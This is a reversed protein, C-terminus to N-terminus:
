GSCARRRGVGLSDVRARWASNRRSLAPRLSRHCLSGSARGSRGHEMYGTQAFGPRNGTIVHSGLSGKAIAVVADGVAFGEVGEGVEAIHGACEAGFPGPDGPYLDLANLVDRFNLGAADIRIEVEGPGPRRRTAREIRLQDLDGRNAIGVRICDGEAPVLRAAKRTIGRWAVQSEGDPRLIERLLPSATDDDEPDLDVAVCHLEPHELRITRALGWLPAQAPCVAGGAAQAGRTVLFLRPVSERQGSLAQVIELVTGCIERGANGNLGSNSIDLAQLHIIVELNPDDLVDRSFTGPEILRSRGGLDNLRNALAAGTGGADGLILCYGTVPRDAAEPPLDKERWALEYLCNEARRSSARRLRLGDFRAVVRGAEAVVCIDATLTDGASPKLQATAWLEDRLPEFLDFRDIGLPLYLDNTDAVAASLVQISADILAPHAHYEGADAPLELRGLAQLAGAWLESVLRFSKGLDVGKERLLVYQQSPDVEARMQARLDPMAVPGPRTGAKASRASARLKWEERDRQYLEIHDGDVVVQVTGGGDIEVPERVLVDELASGGSAALFMELCAAMPLIAKGRVRHESLFPPWDRPSVEFVTQPLAPSVIRRGLLPHEGVKRSDPRWYRQREFPTLPLAVKQRPKRAEQPPIAAGCTFESKAAAEALRSRMEAATEARVEVRWPFATRCASATYCVDALDIGPNADFFSCYREALRRLAVASHASLALTQVAAAPEPRAQPPAEELVIHVNTGSFGFSSVGAIRPREGRSWRIRDVPVEVPVGKLNINHNWRHFHLSPPIEGNSLALAAKLLGAAGAASELHGLNTKVSGIRLPAEPGRGDGLASALAHVEIPDGLATGTGHAEVYDVESPRVGAEALAQRIVAEQAPGNPVTLGSTRGDQNVASGRIVALIRDRDELADSLRKLVLMVCGEARVFGDASDDFAKCRGDAAMMHARSLAIGTDPLLIVNAGGALAMRSEGTRLSLCAQHVAVLSSSCATDISVNPGQLGLVYSIRGGAVSRAVGSAYYTDLDGRRALLRGYDDSALGVFVGTRSEGLHGPHQAANEIAEWSVELLLRQQPDMSEAERPSIGFFEPDFDKVGEIFGGWRTAMKGPSDPDPSYYEEINWRDRPVETIADAGSQLLAWFSELDNVGGPLRCAAGIIAITDAKASSTVVRDEAAPEAQTGFLETELYAAVAQINPFDFVLTSSLKGELRLGRELVDRFELAMLSDLGLDMLRQTVPLASPSAIGLVTALRERVFEELLSRRAPAPGQQLTERFRDTTRDALVGAHAGSATKPGRALIVHQGLVETPAGDEPFSQADEFGAELLLKKWQTPTLLPHDHRIGDDYREWGEILATTVDFWPFYETAECLVLLGNSSLLSRVRALAHPLDATAHLVNTALVIDFGGPDFGQEAPDRELDLLSYQVFPYAGFKRKARNLFLASVDTFCYDVNGGTLRPLVAASTAGTGAGVELIRCRGTRRRSAAGAAAAALNNFYASVPSGEYLREALTFDGNPFLTELPSQKGRLISALQRGCSDAYELLAPDDRFEAEAAAVIEDRRPIADADVVVFSGDPEAACIRLGAMQKLWRPLLRKYAPLIDAREMLSEATHRDGKKLPAGLERFAEVISAATLSRLTKWKREYSPVDLGAPTRSAYERAEGLAAPWPEAQTQEIWYRSREFPYTPLPIRRGSCVASEAPLPDCPVGAAFRELKHRLDELSTGIFAARHEFEKRGTAATFCADAPSIAPHSEFWGAYRRAMEALAIPSRASLILTYPQSPPAGAERDPPQELVIHANTGSFGFSSIGAIRPRDATPWPLLDTNIRVPAKGLDIHSNLKAFHLHPPILNNGVALIAKILGAIGAAAELHGINTKVSGLFLPRDSGRDRCLASILAHVEIPDGLATGTGHAEIYSVDCPDVRADALAARIVAVQAPGSPVTLGGSRGDQNIASGRIVAHVHDGDALADTLRKLVIVGCGEGRSFGDAADDFTKCLGDPALMRSKCLAVMNEPRLMLNVGGALAMRCEGNRLSRCALHVAVLSSSCATDVVLSPGNFGLLYSLRGAAISSSGGTGTYTGIHEPDAMLLRLYDSGAMGLFVGTPSEASGDPPQAANEMAEWAVELLLRQQPDMAVAERPHIGFFGADFEDVTDLFGGRRVYMKGPAAQDPDYYRDVDWRFGPIEGIASRGERLLQWFGDQDPAGPFRLSMGVVAIQARGVSEVEDLRSRLDRIELLARKVPSLEAPNVPAPM